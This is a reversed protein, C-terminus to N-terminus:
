TKTNHSISLLHESFRKRSGRFISNSKSYSVNSVSIELNVIRSLGEFLLLVTKTLLLFDLSMAQLPIVMPIGLKSAASLRLNSGMAQVSGLSGMYYVSDGSLLLLLNERSFLCGSNLGVLTGCILILCFYRILSMFWEFLYFMKLLFWCFCYFGSATITM